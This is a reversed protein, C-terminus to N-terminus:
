NTTVTVGDGALEVLAATVEPTSPPAPCGSAITLVGSTQVGASNILVNGVDVAEPVASNHNQYVLGTCGWTALSCTHDSAASYMYAYQLDDLSAFLTGLDGTTPNTNLALYTLKRLKVYESLNSEVAQNGAVLRLVTVAVGYIKITYTGPAAYNHDADVDTGAGLLAYNDSLDDGWDIFLSAGSDGRWTSEFTQESHTITAISGNAVGGGFRGLRRKFIPIM